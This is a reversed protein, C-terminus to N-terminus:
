WSTAKLDVSGFLQKDLFEDDAEVPGTSNNGDLAYSERTLVSGVVVRTKGDKSQKEKRM